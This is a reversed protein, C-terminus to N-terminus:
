RRNTTWSMKFRSEANLQRAAQPKVPIKAPGKGVENTICWHTVNGKKTVGAHPCWTPTQGTPGAMWSAKGM